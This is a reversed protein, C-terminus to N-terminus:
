VSAGGAGGPRGTRLMTMVVYSGDMLPIPIEPKFGNREYLMAAVESAELYCDLGDKDVLDRLGQKLLQDGIGRGQCEPLVCMAQLVAVFDTVRPAVWVSNCNM